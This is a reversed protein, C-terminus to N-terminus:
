SKPDLNFKLMCVLLVLGHRPAIGSEVQLCGLEKKGKEEKVPEELSFFLFTLFIQKKLPEKFNSFNFILIWM